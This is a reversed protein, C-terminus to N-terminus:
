SHSTQPPLSPNFSLEPSALSDLGNNSLGDSTLGHYNYANVIFPKIKSLEGKM